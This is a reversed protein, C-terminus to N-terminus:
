PALRQHLDRNGSLLALLAFARARRPSIARWQAGQRYQAGNRAKAINRAGTMTTYLAAQSFTFVTAPSPCAMGTM